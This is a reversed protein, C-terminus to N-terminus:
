GRQAVGNSFTETLQMLVAPQDAWGGDHPLIGKQMFLHSRAVQAYDQLWLVPCEDTFLGEVWEAEQKCAQPKQM